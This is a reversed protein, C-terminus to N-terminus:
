RPLDVVVLVDNGFRSVGLSRMLAIEQEESELRLFCLARRTEAEIVTLIDISRVEGFETCMEHIASKLGVTDGCGTLAKLREASTRAPNM